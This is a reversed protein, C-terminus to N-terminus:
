HELKKYCDFHYTRTHTRVMVHIRKIKDGCRECTCEVRNRAPWVIRSM